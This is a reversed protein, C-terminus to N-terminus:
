GTRRGVASTDTPRPVATVPSRRTAITVPAVPAM